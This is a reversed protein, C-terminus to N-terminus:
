KSISTARNYILDLLEYQIVFDISQAKQNYVTDSYNISKPETHQLSIDYGFLCSLCIGTFRIDIVTNRTALSASCRREPTAVVYM